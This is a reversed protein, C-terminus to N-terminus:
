LLRDAHEPAPLWCTARRGFLRYRHRALWRYAADRWRRPVIHAALALRWPWGLGSAIRLVAASERWVRDGDVVVMTAPDAPDIGYRRCLAAGAASQVSALRFRRRRDRRLIFQASGSCLLCQADFVIVPANM